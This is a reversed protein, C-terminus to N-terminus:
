WPAPGVTLSTRVALSQLRHNRVMARTLSEHLHSALESRNAFRRTAAADRACARVFADARSDQQDTDRVLVYRAAGGARAAAYEQEADGSLTGGLILVLGDSTAAVAVAESPDHPQGPRDDEWLFARHGDLRNVTDAATRREGDLSGDTRSTVCIRLADTDRGHLVEARLGADAAPAAPGLAARGHLRLELDAPTVAAGAAACDAAIDNLHARLAGAREADGGVFRMLQGTAAVADAGGDELSTQVVSLARLVLWAWDRQASEAATWGLAAASKAVLGDVLRLRRRIPGSRRAVADRFATEPGRAIECLRALEVSPGHPAAVALGLRTAGSAVAKPSEAVIRLFRGFLAVTEASSPGLRPTLRGAVHWTVVAGAGEATVVVDDVPSDAQFTVQTPVLAGGLGVVPEGALLAALMRAGFRLEAVTGKGGTAEPSAAGTGLRRPGPAESTAHRKRM